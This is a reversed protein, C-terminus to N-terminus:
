PTGGFHHTPISTTHVHAIPGRGAGLRWSKSRRLQAATFAGARATAEPLPWGLALNAALAASYTCGTGHDNSTEVPDHPLRVPPEVPSLLVDVGTESGTRVVPVTLLGLLDIEQANPTVVSARPLLLDRYAAIVAEDAFSAGTTARLVPDVVLPVGRIRDAVFRAVLEVAGVSGLLGTKVAAVPLDSLVADLQAALVDVPVLHIRHVATTDQATVATVACTGHVGLAAFTALDAAIGAGGSPDTGAISLVVPPTPSDNM